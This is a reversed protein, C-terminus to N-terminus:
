RRRHRIMEQFDNKQRLIAKSCLILFYFKFKSWKLEPRRIPAAMFIFIRRDVIIGIKLQTENTLNSGNKIAVNFHSGALCRQPWFM